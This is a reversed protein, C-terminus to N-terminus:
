RTSAQKERDAGNKRAPMRSLSAYVATTAKAIENTAAFQPQLAVLVTALVAICQM